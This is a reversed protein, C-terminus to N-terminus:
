FCKAASAHFTCLLYYKEESHGGAQATFRKDDVIM